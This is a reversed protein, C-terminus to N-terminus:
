RSLDFYLNENDVHRGIMAYRGNIKCPFLAMGKNGASDWLLTMRFSYISKTELLESRIAKGSYATYTVHFIREGDECFEVFCAHKSETRCFRRHNSLDGTRQFNKM